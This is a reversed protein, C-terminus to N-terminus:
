GHLTKFNWENLGRENRPAPQSLVELAEGVLYLSGTAVILKAGSMEAQQLAESLSQNSIVEARPNARECLAHLEAPSSARDSGVPVLYIRQALPALAECMEPFQKDRLIGLVLTLPTGTFQEQLATKLAQVGALNHAGDLVVHTGSAREIVQLRGPWSVQELGARCTEESVPLIGQLAEVVALAVAANRKQHAGPLPLQISSLFSSEVANGPVIMLSAVHERAADSIVQLAAAKLEGTIVPVNEKIIGAKERAIQEITEGLWKQHDLEVNTIVSALPQVINTADFRGGMGTEWIVLDCQQEAFYKLAMVTVVEFFTPSVDKQGRSFQALLSKMESVSRIVESEPMPQRNVQIRESFSILHPSTFLGVRLGATRYISELMACVSGKGNTGAVHIFRLRDQPNGALAALKRTNELGFKAGFLQLDYLFQISESYSM